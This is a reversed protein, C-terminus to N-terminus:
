KAVYMGKLNFSLGASNYVIGKIKPNRMQPITAQYLPAVGQDAMIVRSAALMDQWRKQANNADTSASKKVLQDYRHNTWGGENFTNNSQLIQLFTYPDSYDAGWNSVFFDFQHHTQRQILTKLPVSTVDITLNPLIKELQGQVYAASHKAATSDGCLVELHLSKKKLQKLAQRYKTRAKSPSYELGTQGLKAEKTFDEGTKPNSALGQTVFGQAPVSGDALVNKTFSQRDMAYSFAQRLARNKFAPRTRQNFELYFIRSDKLVHMNQNNLENKVQTGSLTAVDLQNGQYLNYMTSPDKIVQDNIKDLYVHKKDWYTQNAVLTWKENTGIWGNLEFPGNYVTKSATTGYAKGYKEVAKQNQPFFLPFAMLLKFYPIPRELTVQLQHSGLAKIGLTAPKAKNAQIKNANKIGDFIYGYQSATKPNITRQWSYVFDKAVVPDGNSWKANKRLNFTYVKGNASKTMKTAIGPQLQHNKGLRYLGEDTNGVMTIDIPQTLKSPDLTTLDETESWNVVQKAAMNAKLNGTNKVSQKKGCGALLLTVVVLSGITCGIKRM